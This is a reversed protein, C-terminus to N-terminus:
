FFAMLKAVEDAECRKMVGCLGGDSRVSTIVTNPHM